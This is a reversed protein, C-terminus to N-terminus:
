WEAYNNEEIWLLLSYVVALNNSHIVYYLIHVKVTVSSAREGENTVYYNVNQLRTPRGM